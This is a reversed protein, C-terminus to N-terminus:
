RLLLAPQRPPVLGEPRDPRFTSCPEDVKLACLGRARFFCDDCTVPKRRRPRQSPAAAM